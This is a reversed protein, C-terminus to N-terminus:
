DLAQADAESRGMRPTRAAVTGEIALERAYMVFRDPFRVLV